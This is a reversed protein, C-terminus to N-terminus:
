AKGEVLFTYFGVKSHITSYNRLFGFYDAVPHLYMVGQLSRKKADVEERTCGQHMKWQEYEFEQQASQVTKESIILTKSCNLLQDVIAWKDPCFHLTWNCLTLAYRHPQINTSYNIIGDEYDKYMVPSNDVGWLNTWGRELFKRLTVGTACGFDLIPADKSIHNEAYDLCYDITDTYLPIHKLVHEEYIKSIHKDFQWTNM